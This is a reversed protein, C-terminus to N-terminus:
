RGAKEYAADILSMAAVYDDISTAPPAKRALRDLTDSMCLRYRTAPLEIPLEIIAGDDLTACFAREGYDILTANESVIRWEFDGGPRMSAFTYGAEVVFLAGAADELVLLAHDEVAARHIRNEISVTKLRLAGTALGLAANVGHIGLNRLAGGGGIAPDVVWAVGDAAYRQPPGNVLRFQCHAVAGARGQSRLREFATAAPGFRNPLPVSVFAQHQRALESLVALAAASSAAPKELILPIGAEIVARARAPITSPHGMLLIADPPSSLIKAFDAIFPLHQRTAFARAHQADEDWIGAIEAGCFRAADLHMEAHWHSSGALVIKM